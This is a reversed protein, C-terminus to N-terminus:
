FHWFDQHHSNSRLPCWGLYACKFLIWCSVVQLILMSGLFIFTQFIINRKLKSVKLNWTLKSPHIHHIHKLNSLSETLNKTTRAAQPIPAGLRVTWGATRVPHAEAVCFRNVFVKPLFWVRQFCRQLKGFHLPFFRESKKRVFYQGSIQNFLFRAELHVRLNWSVLKRGWKKKGGTVETYMFLVEGWFYWVFKAIFWWTEHKVSAIAADLNM